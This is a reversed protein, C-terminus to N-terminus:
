VIRPRQKSYRGQQGPQPRRGEPSGPAPSAPQVGAPQPQNQPEPPRPSAYVGITAILNTAVIILLVAEAFYPIQIGQTAPYSALVAAALGRPLMTTLVLKYQLLRRDLRVALEVGIYRAALVAALAVFAIVWAASPLSFVNFLTGLYVFFFTRVFFTIETQFARFTDDLKFDLPIKFREAINSANGVALAFVLVAIAGSARVAEVFSYLLFIAALSLMYAYPKEALRRLVSIWAVAAVLGLFTAIAFAGIFSNLAVSLNVSNHAVIDLLSVAVIISLADTLASELALVAKVSEAIRMRSVIGLVISSSTGGVVAGLLLGHALPWGFAAAMFAGMALVTMFFAAFTFATASSLENLVRFFDLNIGGDFLLIILAITGIFPAASSFLAEDVLHLGPGVLIGLLMLLLADSIRTREFVASALFGVVIIVGILTFLELM